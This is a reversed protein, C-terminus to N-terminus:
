LHRGGTGIRLWSLGTWLGVDWKRFIWIRGDVGPDKLHNAEKLNRGCFGTYAVIILLVVTWIKSNKRTIESINKAWSSILPVYHFISFYCFVQLRRIIKKKPSKESDTMAPCIRCIGEAEASLFNCPM